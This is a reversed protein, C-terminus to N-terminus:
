ADMIPSDSISDIHLSSGSFVLQSLPLSSVVYISTKPRSRHYDQEGGGRYIPCLYEIIPETDTLPAANSNRDPGTVVNPLSRLSKALELLNPSLCASTVELVVPIGQPLIEAEYGARGVSKRRESSANNSNSSGGVRTMVIDQQLHGKVRLGHIYLSDDKTPLTLQMRDEYIAVVRLCNPECLTNGVHNRVFHQHIAELVYQCCHLHRRKEVACGIERVESHQFKDIPIRSPMEHEACSAFFKVRDLIDRLFYEPGREISRGDGGSLRVWQVPTTNSAIANIQHWAEAEM